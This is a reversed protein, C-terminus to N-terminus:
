MRVQARTIRRVFIYPAQLDMGRQRACGPPATTSTAMLTLTGISDSSLATVGDAVMSGASAGGLDLSSSTIRGLEGDSLTMNASGGGLAIDTSGSGHIIMSSVGADVNGDLDVDFATISISGENSDIRKGSALSFTGDGSNDSDANITIAQYKQQVDMNDLIQVGSGALLTVTGEAISEQM